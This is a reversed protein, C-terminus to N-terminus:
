CSSAKLDHADRCAFIPRAALKLEGWPRHGRGGWREDSGRTRWLELLTKPFHVLFPSSPLTLPPKGLTEEVRDTVPDWAVDGVADCAVVWPLLRLSEASCNFSSFAALLLLASTLRGFQRIKGESWKSQGARARM